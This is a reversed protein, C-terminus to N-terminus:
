GLRYAVDLAEDPSLFLDSKGKNYRKLLTEELSDHSILTTEDVIHGVKVGRLKLARSVLRCRHCDIPDEEACMMAIKHTRMGKELRKLGAIFAPRSSITRFYDIDQRPPADPQRGGLVEGLPVYFLGARPLAHKLVDQNFQPTFKSFPVSRVDAIASVGYHQALTCFEALPRVSHGISVIDFHKLPSNSPITM